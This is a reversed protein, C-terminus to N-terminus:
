ASQRLGSTVQPWSAARSARARAAGAPWRGREGGHGRDAGSGCPPRLPQRGTRGPCCLLAARAVARLPGLTTPQFSEPRAARPECRMARMGNSLRAEQVPIAMGAVDEHSVPGDGADDVPRVGSQTLGGGGDCRCPDQQRHPRQRGVREDASGDGGYAPPQGPAGASRVATEVRQGLRTEPVVFRPPTVGRHEVHRRLPSGHPRTGGQRALGIGPTRGLLHRLHGPM